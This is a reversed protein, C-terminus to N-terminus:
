ASVPAALGGQPVPWRHPTVRKLDKVQALTREMRELVEAAQAQSVATDFKTKLALLRDLLRSVTVSVQGPAQAYAQRCLVHRREIQAAAEPWRGAEASQAMQLALSALDYCDRAAKEAEEPRGNQFAFQSAEYANKAGDTRYQLMKALAPRPAVFNQLQQRALFAEQQATSVRQSLAVDRELQDLAELYGASPLERAAPLEDRMLELRQSLQSTPDIQEFRVNAVALLDEVRQRVTREAGTTNNATRTLTGTPTCSPSWRSSRSAARSPSQAASRTPSHDPSRAGNPDAFPDDTLPEVAEGQQYWRSSKLQQYMTQVSGQRMGEEMMKQLAAKDQTTGHRACRLIARAFWLYQRGHSDAKYASSFDGEDFSRKADKFKGHSVALQRQLLIDFPDELLETRTWDFDEILHSNLGTLHAWDGEYATVETKLDAVCQRWEATLERGKLVHHQARLAAEQLELLHGGKPSWAQLRRVCSMVQHCFLVPSKLEPHVDADASKAPGGAAVAHPNAGTPGSANKANQANGSHDPHEASDADAEDRYVATYGAYPGTTRGFM